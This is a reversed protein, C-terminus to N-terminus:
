AQYKGKRAFGARGQSCTQTHTYQNGGKEAMIFM